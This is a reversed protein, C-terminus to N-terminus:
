NWRYDINMMGFNKDKSFVKFTKLKPAYDYAINESEGYIAFGIHYLDTKLPINNYDVQCYGDKVYKITDIKDIITNIGFAYHGEQNFIALGFNIKEVTKNKEFYVRISM